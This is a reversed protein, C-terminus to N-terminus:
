WLQFQGRRRMIALHELRGLRLRLGRQGPATVAQGGPAAATGQVAAPNASVDKGCGVCFREDGQLQTGCNKCFAM